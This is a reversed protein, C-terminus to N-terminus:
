EESLALLSLRWFPGDQTRGEILQARLIGAFGEFSASFNTREDFGSVVLAHDPAVDDHRIVAGCPVPVRTMSIVFEISLPSHRVVAVHVPSALGNMVTVEM